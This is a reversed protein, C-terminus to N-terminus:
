WSPDVTNSNLTAPNSGSPPVLHSGPLCGEIWLNRLLGGPGSLSHDQLRQSLPCLRRASLHEQTCLGLDAIVCFPAPLVQWAGKIILQWAPIRVGIVADLARHGVTSRGPM